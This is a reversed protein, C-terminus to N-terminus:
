VRNTRLGSNSKLLPSLAVKVKNLIPKVGASGKDSFTQEIPGVKNKIVRVSTENPTPDVGASIEMVAVAQAKLLERPIADEALDEGFYVVKERPYMLEQEPGLRCGLLSDEFEILYDMSKIVIVELTTDDASLTVGRALAFARSYNLDIFTNADVVITGDEPILSM